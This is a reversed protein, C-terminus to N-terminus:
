DTLDYYEDELKPFEENLLKFLSSSCTTRIVDSWYKQVRANREDSTVKARDILSWYEMLLRKADDIQGHYVLDLVLDRAFLDLHLDGEILEQERLQQCLNLEHKQLEEPSIAGNCSHLFGGQFSVRVVPYPSGCMCSKWGQWDGDSLHFITEGNLRECWTVEMATDYPGFRRHNGDSRLHIFTIQRYVHNGGTWELLVLTAGGTGTLDEVVLNSARGNVQWTLASPEVPPRTEEPGEDLKLFDESDFFEFAYGSCGTTLFQLVGDYEIRVHSLQREQDSVDVLRWKEWTYATERYRDKAILFNAYKPDEEEASSEVWKWGIPMQLPAATECAPPLVTSEDRELLSSVACAGQEKPASVTVEHKGCGCLAFLVVAIFFVRCWM